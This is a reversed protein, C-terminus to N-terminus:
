ICISHTIHGYIGIGISNKFGELNKGYGEAFAEKISFPLLHQLFFHFKLGKKNM